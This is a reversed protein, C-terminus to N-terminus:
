GRKMSNPGFKKKPVEGLYQYIDDWVDFPEFPKNLLRFKKMGSFPNLEDPASMWIARQFSTALDALEIRMKGAAGCRSVADDLIKVIYDMLGHSAFYFRRAMNPESLDTCQIPLSNQLESLVGRFELQNKRDYFSFPSMYFPAGFRRRMQPNSNLVLISRPLGTLIVPIGLSDILSKVWDTVKRCEATRNGDIFHQFEDIMLLEVGCSKFLYIIRNTKVTTNGSAAAPDGMSLLITEALMKVSPAAPTTVRVVPIKMGTPTKRPPFKSAYYGLVTTKGSGTQAVLLMGEAVKAEVGRRHRRAIERVAETFQPTEIIEKRLSFTAAPNTCNRQDKESLGINSLQHFLNESKM